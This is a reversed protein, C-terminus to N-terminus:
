AKRVCFGMLKLFGTIVAILVLYVGQYFTQQGIDGAFNKMDRAAMGDCSAQFNSDSFLTPPYTDVAEELKPGAPAPAGGETNLTVHDAHLRTRQKTSLLEAAPAPSAEGPSPGPAAAAVPPPRYCFGACRFNNEMGKLFYTYPAAEEYGDCEEISYKKACAPTARINQLVQSYEFLRHTQDSYDCRHLLNGYTIESQHTLPLSVMMLFLGFLTIFINAIMMITQETHVSSHSKRFFIAVTIAYLVIICVCSAIVIEPVRRGVWFVYNSDQLLIVANWIPVVSLMGLLVCGVGMFINKPTTFKSKWDPKKLSDGLNATVIESGRQPVPAPGPGAQGPYWAMQSM